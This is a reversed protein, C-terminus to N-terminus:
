LPATITKVANGREIQRHSEWRSQQDNMLQGVQYALVKAKLRLLCSKRNELQSRSDMALVQLGTPLHTGRVATEVKNVNQGGPGSARQTEFRVEKENFAPFEKVDFVGVQVFWNKRKHNKRYPSQAVWLITGCWERVFADLNEGSATLTTSLLTDKFEGPINEDIEIKLEQTKAQALILRQVCAVARCCEAPGNGSTIQIILKKM